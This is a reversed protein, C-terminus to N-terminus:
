RDHAFTFAWKRHTITRRYTGSPATAALAAPVVVLVVLAIAIAVARRM